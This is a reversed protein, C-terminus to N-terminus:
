AHFEPERRGRDRRADTLDAAVGLPRGILLPAVAAYLLGIVLMAGALIRTGFFPMVALLVLVAPSMGRFRTLKPYRVPAIMMLSFTGVFAPLIVSLWWEGVLARADLFVAAM